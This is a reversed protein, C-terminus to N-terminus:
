VLLLEIFQVLMLAHIAFCAGCWSQAALLVGGYFLSGGVGIAIAVDGLLDHEPFRRVQVLLTLAIIGHFLIAVLGTPLGLFIDYYAYTGCKTACLGFVSLAALFAAAVHPLARRDRWTSSGIVAFSMAVVSVLTAAVGTLPNSILTVTAVLSFCGLWFSALQLAVRQSLSSPAPAASASLAEDSM